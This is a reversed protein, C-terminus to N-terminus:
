PKSSAPKLGPNGTDVVFKWHGTSDKKWVSLYTGEETEGTQKIALQYTGYTYALDGAAAVDAYMPQWTLVFSTDSRASLYNSVTDKGAIPLHNPRLLTGNDAIYAIFAEHMGKEASLNSFDQDTKMVEAKLAEIAEPEISEPKSVTPQKCSFLCFGIAVAFFFYKLPANNRAPFAKMNLM